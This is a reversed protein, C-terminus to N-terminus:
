PQGEVVIVRGAGAELYDEGYAAAFLAMAQEGTCHAPAVREVGLERLERIIARISDVSRDALHFGGLVLHVPEGFLEKVRAVMRAIGPHACGTVVVLGEDTRVVLAQEPIPGHRIEGTTFIDEVVEQGPEAEVLETRIEIRSKVDAPFASLGYVPPQAGTQLLGLLGYTHDGHEHSLVVAEITKPDIGLLEMNGMLIHPKGGSDFLVTHGGYEMLAAFGWDAELAPDYVVNDYVVTL